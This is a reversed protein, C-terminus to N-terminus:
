SSSGAQRTLPARVNRLLWLTVVVTMALTLAGVATHVMTVLITVLPDIDLPGISFLTLGLFVQVSTIILLLKAAAHLGGHEPRNIVSMSLGLVLLAVVFAGLIHLGVGMAGHRFAVGLSVQVLVLAPAIKALSRLPPADVPEPREKWGRSTFVTIAATASFILQALFAHGIRVAPSQPATQLGLLSEITVAALVIWGLRRLWARKEAKRLWIVLGITLIGASAGAWPHIQGFSYLPREENGSVSAGTLLLLLTCAALLAAYRHLWPSSPGSWAFAPM